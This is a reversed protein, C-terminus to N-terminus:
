NNKNKKLRLDSNEIRFIKSISKNILRSFVRDGYRDQIENLALNTSVIVPKQEFM